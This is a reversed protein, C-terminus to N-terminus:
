RDVGPPVPAPAPPDQRRRAVDWLRFGVDLGNKNTDPVGRVDGGDDQGDPGVSYIV